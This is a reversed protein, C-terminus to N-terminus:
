NKIDLNIIELRKVHKTEKYITAIHFTCQLDWLLIKVERVVVLTCQMM